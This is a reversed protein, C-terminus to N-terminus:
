MNIFTFYNSPFKEAAIKASNYDHFIAFVTSGSGTMLVFTAKSEYLQTKIKEIEPYKNFVIEEFDNTVENKLKSFDIQVDSNISRLFNNHNKLKLNEYAWKTSIHIRPNVILIPFPINFNIKQIIEGRSQAFSPTPNLFFPTDSGINLALENLIKEEINLNFFNNLAILSAAGDSSGGGMGAGIPIYKELNIKINFKKGTLDELLRVSKVISNNKENEIQRINSKFNFEDSSSITLIDFLKIPYFITEIDHYGDSRKRLINLGFNIKAPTKIILKEM